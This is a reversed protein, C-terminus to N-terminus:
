RACSAGRRRASPWVYASRGPASSPIQGDPRFAVPPVERLSSVRVDAAVGVIEILQGATDAQHPTTLERRGVVGRRRRDGHHRFREGARVESVDIRNAPPESVLRMRGDDRVRAFGISQFRAAVPHPPGALAGDLYVDAQLDASWMFGSGSGAIAVAQVGATGAAAALTVVAVGTFLPQRVLGRCAHRTDRRLDDLWPLGRRDRYVEKMAEVAGFARRAAFRADVPSMGQREYDAALLELHARIDADLAADLRARRFLSALRSLLIRMRM